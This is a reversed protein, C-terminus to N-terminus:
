RIITHARQRDNKAAIQFETFRNRSVLITPVIKQSNYM